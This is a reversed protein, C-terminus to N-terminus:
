QFDARGLVRDREVDLVGGRHSVTAPHFASHQIPVLRELVHSDGVRDADFELVRPGSSVHLLIGLIHSPVEDAPEVIVNAGRDPGAPDVRQGTFNEIGIDNEGIAPDAVVPHLEVLQQRLRGHLAHAGFCQGPECSMGVPIRADAQSCRTLSGFDASPDGTLCHGRVGPMWQCLDVVPEDTIVHKISEDSAGALDVSKAQGGLSFCKVQRQHFHM